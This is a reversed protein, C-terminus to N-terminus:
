PGRLVLTGVGGATGAIWVSGAASAAGAPVNDSTGVNAPPAVSVIASGNWHLLEPVAVPVGTAQDTWGNGVMWVDNPGLAAIASLTNHGKPDPSAVISWASGNWHEVVTKLPLFSGSAVDISYGSAWANTASLAVVGTLLDQVALGPRQPPVNPSAVISWASGNWHEVLTSTSTSVGSVRSSSGVAWVDNPGSASVGVFGASAAGIPTPAPVVRWATGDWHEALPAGITTGVAWVDNASIAALASVSARPVAIAPTAVENWAGGNWHLVLPTV